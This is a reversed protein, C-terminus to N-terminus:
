QRQRVAQGDAGRGLKEGREVFRTGSFDLRAERGLHEVLPRYPRLVYSLVVGPQDGVLEAPLDVQHDADGIAAHDAEVQGGAMGIAETM